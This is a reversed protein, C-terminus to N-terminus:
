QHVVQFMNQRLEYLNNRDISDLQPRVHIITPLRQHPRLSNSSDSLNEDGHPTLFAALSPWVYVCLITLFAFTLLAIVIFVVILENDNGGKIRNSPCDDIYDLIEDCVCQNRLDLFTYNIANLKNFQNLYIEAENTASQNSEGNLLLLVSHKVQIKSSGESEDIWLKCARLISVSYESVENSLAAIYVDTDSPEGDCPGQNLQSLEPLKMVEKVIYKTKCFPLVRRFKLYVEGKEKFLLMEVFKKGDGYKEIFSEANCDIDYFNNGGIFAYSVIHFFNASHQLESWVKNRYFSDNGTCVAANCNLTYVFLKVITCSFLVTTTRM